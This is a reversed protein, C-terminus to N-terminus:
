QCDSCLPRSCQLCVPNNCGVCVYTTMRHKKAPCIRCARRTGTNVAREQDELTVMDTGLVRTITLRLERPLRSNIVRRQMLPVVLLRALNKIFDGREVNKPQYQNYLIYANMASLDLIRYLLVMPWRRTRRSCSYISCKKDAEDVGGKTSNYYMIIEPKNTDEDIQNGHHMSSVLIVARNKKPVFSCLTKQNTHGFLTSNVQRNKNPQFEKPIERKNKKVTGVYTLKRSSLEDVLQISSFWNDATVNRNTGHIPKTLRLVCQTPVLFKKEQTTLGTGDSDKGTYVYGNYFYFNKADCLARIVLGYKGPKKPMYSIMHSRGRFKVLMEDVTVYESLEYHLQSNSVFKNFIASVAALKDTKIRQNRDEPDDFRLCLLLVLFRTESMVCRFIECGTGDSAFLYRTDEHNSKLVASYYLLGIFAKLEIMDLDNVEPRHQRIFKCRYISIRANTWTLIQQLIEEDFLKNWISVCDKEDDATLKSSGARSTIINHQPTRVRTSPPTKAWKYRNKGYYYYIRRNSAIESLPIDDSSDSDSAQGGEGQVQHQDEMQDEEPDEDEDSEHSQILQSESIIFEEVDGEDDSQDLALLEMVEKELSSDTVRLVKRPPGQQSNLSKRKSNSTKKNIGAMKSLIIQLLFLLEYLINQIAALSTSDSLSRDVNLHNYSVHKAACWAVDERTPRKAVLVSAVSVSLQPSHPSPTFCRFLVHRLRHYEVDM